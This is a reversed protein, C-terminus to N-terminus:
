DKCVVAHAIVYIDGMLDEGITYQGPAVTDTGNKTPFMASGAYTHTEKLEYGEDINYVVEVEGDVYNVDVTGVLEGKAIDCQGAGAYVEYSYNGENLPGLTWGWRNFGADLFCNEGNESRAFATECDKECELRFNFDMVWLREGTSMDTIWGWTSMGYAGINSDYNAGGPGLHAGFNPLGTPDPRQEIGFTGEAICDGSATITSKEKDIIFFNMDESNSPDGACGEKKHEGGAASWDAWSTKNMLWVDVTVVCSGNTTTGKISATGNDYETFTLNHGEASSFYTTPNFYDTEEEPWWFNATPQRDGFPCRDADIVLCEKVKKPEDKKKKKNSRAEIGSVDEAQGLPETECATFLIITALLLKSINKM